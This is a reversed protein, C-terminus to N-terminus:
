VRAHALADSTCNARFDGASGACWAPEAKQKKVEPGANSVPLCGAV